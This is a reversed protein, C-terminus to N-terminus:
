SSAMRGRGFIRGVRRALEPNRFRLNAGRGGARVHQLAPYLPPEFGSVRYRRVNRVHLHLHVTGARHDTTLVQMQGVPLNKIQYDVARTKEIQTISGFGIERYSEELIGKKEVTMTRREGTVRASANLFYRATEEDRTRLLMVTNPASSVDDGFNRSVSRLQPISQLAFVLAVNSGRATQLVQAFNAHAFPAFEDLIVSVMPQSQGSAENRNLYRSGVVLQLNQLLMRGLATVAKANKSTNLSVFLILGRNIVEDLTLLDEYANVIASLSDETFTMLENLLGQIKPVRERDALSQLLNRASMEFNRRRQGSISPDAELSRRAQAIQEQIVLEDRAMVLVDLVNYLRSSHRLVRCIDSLYTAQHARFFDQRLAFSEFFATVVEQHSSEQSAFLPNFRASIDPRLPDLVRLHDMRGAAGIEYLLERMFEQDGKGDFLIMPLHRGRVTRHIDQAALNLLLTSKGSGSQGLVIAQMRRQEDPWVWPRGYIDYGPMVASNRACAAAHRLDRLMPVFLPPHPWNEERRRKRVDIYWAISAAAAVACFLYLCFEAVQEARLHLRGALLYIAGSGMLAGSVLLVVTEEDEQRRHFERRGFEYGNRNRM